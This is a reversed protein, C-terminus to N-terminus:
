KRAAGNVAVVAGDAPQAGGSPLGALHLAEQVAPDTLRPEVAVPELVLWRHIFGRADVPQTAGKPRTLTSAAPRQADPEAQAVCWAGGLCLSFIALATKM